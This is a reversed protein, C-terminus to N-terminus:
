ANRAVIRKAGRRQLASRLQKPTFAWGKLGLLHKVATACTAPGRVVANVERRRTLWWAEGGRAEVDNLIADVQDTDALWLDVGYRNWEYVIWVGFQMDKTIAFAHRYGPRTFWRWWVPGCDCFCVIWMRM